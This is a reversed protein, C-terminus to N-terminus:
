ISRTHRTTLGYVPAVGSRSGSWSRRATVTLKTPDAVPIPKQLEVLQYLYELEDDDALPDRPINQWNASMREELQGIPSIAPRTMQVSM